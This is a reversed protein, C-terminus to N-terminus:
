ERGVGRTAEDWIRVHRAVAVDVLVLEELHRQLLLRRTVEAV